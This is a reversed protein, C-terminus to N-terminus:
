QSHHVEQGSAIPLNNVIPQNILINQRMTKWFHAATVDFLLIAKVSKWRIKISNLKLSILIHQVCDIPQANEPTYDTKKGYWDPKWGFWEVWSTAVKTHQKNMTYPICKPKISQAFAKLQTSWQVLQSLTTNHTISVCPKISM